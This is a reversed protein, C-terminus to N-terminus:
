PNKRLEIRVSNGQHRATFKPAVEKTTEIVFRVKGPHQGVRVRSVLPHHLEFVKRDLGSQRGPVDVVLRPPNSLWFAQQEGVPGDTPLTLTARDAGGDIRLAGRVIATPQPRTEPVRAAVGPREPAHREPPQAVHAPPTPSLVPQPTTEPRAVIHGPPPPTAAPNAALHAASPAQASPATEAVPPPAAAPVPAAPTPVAAGAGLALDDATAGMDARETATPPPPPPAVDDNSSSLAALVLALGIGAALGAGAALWPNMRGSMAAAAAAAPDIPPTPPILPLTWEGARGETRERVADLIQTTQAADLELFRLGYSADEESRNQVWIVQCLFSQPEEALTLRFQLRLKDGVALGQPAVVAVGQASLNVLSADFTEEYGDFSLVAPANFRVREPPANLGAPTPIPMSSMMDPGDDTAEADDIDFDHSFSAGDHARPGGLEPLETDLNKNTDTM